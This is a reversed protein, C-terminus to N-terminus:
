VHARGIEDLIEDITQSSDVNQPEQWINVKLIEMLSNRVVYRDETTTLNNRVAYDILKQISNCIM